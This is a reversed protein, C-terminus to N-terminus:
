HVAKVRMVVTGPHNDTAGQFRAFGLLYKGQGDAAVVYWADKRPAPPSSGKAIWLDSFASVIRDGRYTQNALAAADVTDFRGKETDPTRAQV